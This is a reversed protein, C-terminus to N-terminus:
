LAVPVIAMPHSCTPMVAIMTIARSDTSAHPVRNKRRSFTTVESSQCDPWTVNLDPAPGAELQEPSLVDVARRRALAEGCCSACVHFWQRM